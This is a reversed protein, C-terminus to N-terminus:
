HFLHKFLKSLGEPLDNRSSVPELYVVGNSYSLSADSSNISGDELLKETVHKWCVSQEEDIAEM